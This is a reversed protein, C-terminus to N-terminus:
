QGIISLKTARRFPQPLVDRKWTLAQEVLLNQERGHERNSGTAPSASAPRGAYSGRRYKHGLEELAYEIRRDVFMWYGMNAPEEQCWVVDANPYRKLIAMLTDKPWPYLQEVRVLVVDDIGQDERAQFLDYYVKGSCLVVRRIKDDAVLTTATEGIVRRFGHDTFDSATSIALKHRLLSKPSMIILPKRFNRLVQRRLAHFYNAPTTLNCVQMNDQACLQLYREPRASSHEPGQGEYGHPLLCVLGSMRLWKSEGSSIFQDFIVQAGNAFDGFQAEWLVLARPESLSYGYEYGLVSFESLPSDIVEYRAQTESIQELPIYREETKQDVLVSHRHSFTGRGSDQGSLRVPHGDKVLSGFALAEGMAWDFGEGTEIMQLKAKMQRLIKRNVDFGEPPTGLVTGVHKLDEPSIPTKDQRYEEEGNMAELGEWKGALWDARNPKYNSGAQYEEEMRATFRDNMGDAEAQSLVGDAVLKNAYLTRTTETKAIKQYMIPQTFAPEDSENHGHRRYCVMDVVVDVAFEQRFETAIRAAHVVAEPDDGNCHLIPAQVMKAIDTCYQGSRSYQPSTTFGIQNNIVIHITGGTRYGKLQSLGFCEAVLGQGAFAADGHILIAMAKKRGLELDGTLTQKARVKGLVVPDAAELHSPNAQLSLHVVNGDFERDASTGLHYKVDGSGQVDDPNASNGQFESFIARYPKHMIATLVNLRGRHAMGLNVDVLGLQSGRKLIQELAPIVSEGGELGFRKTGTYKVQLFKEFGEAETLRELIATKGEPTFKTQNRESEIRRQIWSKQDPDQIHMFEVGITGCYTDRVVDIIQRLPASEMGLVNDIFIERGLDAEVFGYSRYDLEPHENTKHLGLPDLDAMLHGRVRYARIMMLARISDLTRARIEEQSAGPTAGPAIKGGKGKGPKTEGAEPDPAGIIKNGRPTWSPGVLDGSLDDAGDRLEQFLDIWSPDVSSPDELYRSYVEAIYVANAGTLFSTEVDGGM